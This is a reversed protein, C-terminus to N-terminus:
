QGNAAKVQTMCTTAIAQLKDQQAALAIKDADSLKDVERLTCSCYPEALAAPGGHSSFSTMCSDHLSKDFSADFTAGGSAPTAAVAVHNSAPAPQGCGASVLVLALACVARRRGPWLAKM